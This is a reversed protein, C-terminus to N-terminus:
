SCALWTMEDAVSSDISGLPQNYFGLGHEISSGNWEAQNAVDDLRSYWLFLNGRFM